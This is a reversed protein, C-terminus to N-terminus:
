PLRSHVGRSEHAAGVESISVCDAVRTGVTYRLEASSDIRANKDTRLIPLKRIGSLYSDATRYHIGGFIRADVVENMM